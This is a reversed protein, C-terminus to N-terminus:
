VDEQPTGTSEVAPATRGGRAARAKLLAASRQAAEEPSLVRVPRARVMRIAAAANELPIGKIVVDQVHHSIDGMWLKGGLAQWRSQNAPRGDIVMLCLEGDDFYLHGRKGPIVKDGCDDQRTRLRNAQAFSEVTM